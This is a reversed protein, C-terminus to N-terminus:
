LQAETAIRAANAMVVLGITTGPLSPFLSSDVVHVRQWDKPNGLLNTDLDTEPNSRMPLTGGVHFSGGRINHRALAGLAYCGFKKGLESLVRKALRHAHPPGSLNQITSYLTGNEKLQLTYGNSHNSHLNCHAVVLHEIAKKKLWALLGGNINKIKLIEYVFENAVSLQTHVWHNSLARAKYEFFLGAQTNANPWTPKLSGFRLMPVVFGSTSLMVVDRDFIKKSKLIIRTSNTAGAALFVRDFIYTVAKGHADIARVAVKGNTEELSDVLVGSQYEVKNQHVLNDLTHTAKYICGYVCGSMCEGCYQCGLVGGQSSARTLLRAQGFVVEGEKFKHAAQTLARLLRENGRKLAIADYNESYLPFHQALGDNVTSYPLAELVQKFYPALQANKVPWDAIDCDDPPLVAAGWGASLGGQAYSFPPSATEFRVEAHPISKGYFYDSGFALKQPISQQMLTPNSFLKNKIDFNWESPSVSALEGILASKDERDTLGFDIIVPKVGRRMLANATAM